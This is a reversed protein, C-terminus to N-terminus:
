RFIIQKAPLNEENPIDMNAGNQLLAKLYKIDAKKAAIHLPTDKKNNVANIDISKWNM